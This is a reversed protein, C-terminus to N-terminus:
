GQAFPNREEPVTGMSGGRKIVGFWVLCFLPYAAGLIVGFILGTQQGFKAGPANQQQAWMSGPNERVFQEMAAFMQLQIAVGVITLVLAAGAYGLHLWRGVERRRMVLIGALILVASVVVSLGSAAIALGSPQFQPPMPENPVAQAMLGPMVLMSAVGCGNCMIGLSGWVISVIGVVKPWSPLSEELMPVPETPPTM